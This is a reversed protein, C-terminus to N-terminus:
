KLESVIPPSDVRWSEQPWGHEDFPRSRLGATVVLTTKPDNGPGPLHDFAHDEPQSLLVYGFQASTALVKLLHEAQGPRAFPELFGGLAEVLAEAQPTVVAADTELLLNTDKEAHLLFASLVRWKSAALATKKGCVKPADATATKLISQGSEWATPGVKPATPRPAMRVLDVVPPPLLSVPPRASALDLSSFIVFSLVHRLAETRYYVDLVMSALHDPSVGQDAEGLGLSRLVQALEAKSTTVPDDHYQTLVHQTILLGISSLMSRIKSGSEIMDLIYSPELSARTGYTKNSAGAQVPEIPGDGSLGRERKQKKRAMAWAALLGIAAGGVLCAVGIGAVSTANLCQSTCVPSPTSTTTIAQTSTAHSTITLTSSSLITSTTSATATSTTGTSMPPDQRRALDLSPLGNDFMSDPPSM